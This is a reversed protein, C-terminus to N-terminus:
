RECNAHKGKERLNSGSRPRNISQGSKATSLVLLDIWQPDIKKRELYFGSLVKIGEPKKNSPNEKEEKGRKWWISSERIYDMIYQSVRSILDFQGEDMPQDKGGISLKASKFDISMLEEESVKFVLSQSKRIYTVTGITKTPLGVKKAFYDALIERCFKNVLAAETPDFRIQEGDVDMTYTKFNLSYHVTKREESKTNFESYSWDLVSASESYSFYDFSMKIQPEASQTSNVPLLAVVLFMVFNKMIM